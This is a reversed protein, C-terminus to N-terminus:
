MRRLSASTKHSFSCPFDQDAFCLFLIHRGNIIDAAEAKGIRPAPFCHMMVEHLILVAEVKHGFLVPKDCAIATEPEDRAFCLKHIDADAWAAPTLADSTHEKLLADFFSQATTHLRDTRM